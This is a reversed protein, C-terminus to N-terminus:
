EKVKGTGNCLPCVDPLEHELDHIEKDLGEVDAELQSYADLSDRLSKVKGTAAVMNEETTQVAAIQEDVDPIDKIEDLLAQAVQHASLSEKLKIRLDKSAAIAKQHADVKVVMEEIAEIDPLGQIDDCAGQFRDLSAQLDDLAIQDATLRHGLEQIEEVDAEASGTDCLVSEEEAAKYQAILSTLTDKSKRTEGVFAVLVKAKEILLDIDDIWVLKALDDNIRTLELGAHEVSNKTARKKQEVLALLKDIDDLRITRNFIRAVEGASDSLLFHPDLQRQINIETIDLAAEVDPPVDRGVADLTKGEVEYQNLDKTRRRVLKRGDDYTLTVSTAKKLTGKDTLNWHSVFGLGDPKNQILWFLARLVASKGNDSPGLIVNLGPHLELKTSEHSQFNSIELAELM